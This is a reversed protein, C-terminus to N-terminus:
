DEGTDSDARNQIADLILPEAAMWKDMILPDDSECFLAGFLQNDVAYINAMATSIIKAYFRRTEVDADPFMKPDTM